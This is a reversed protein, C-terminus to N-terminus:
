DAFLYKKNVKPKNRSFYKEILSIHYNPKSKDPEPNSKMTRNRNESTYQEILGDIKKKHFINLHKDYYDIYNFKPKLSNGLNVQLGHFRINDVTIRPDFITSTSDDPYYITCYELYSKKINNEEIVYYYINGSKMIDKGFLHIKDQDKDGIKVLDRTYKYKMSNEEYVRINDNFYCSPKNVHLSEPYVLMHKKSDFFSFETKYPVNNTLQDNRPRRIIHLAANAEPKNRMLQPIRVKNNPQVQEQNITIANNANNPQIQRKNATANNSQIQRKNITTANNANNPQIQTQNITNTNNPQIQTQNITANPQIQRPMIPQIQRPKITTNNNKNNNYVPQKGKSRKNSPENPLPEGPRKNDFLPQKGMLKDNYVVKAPAKALQQSSRKNYNEIEFAPESGTLFNPNPNPPGSNGTNSSGVGFPNNNGSSSKIYVLSNEDLLNLYNCYFINLLELSLVNNVTYFNCIYM